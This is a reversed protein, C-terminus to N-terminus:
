SRRRRHAAAAVLLDDVVDGEEDDVIALVHRAAAAFSGGECKAVFVLYSRPGWAVIEGFCRGAFPGGEVLTLLAVELPSTM